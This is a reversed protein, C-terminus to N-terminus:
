EKHFQYLQTLTNLVGSQKDVVTPTIEGEDIPSKYTDILDKLDCIYDTESEILETM